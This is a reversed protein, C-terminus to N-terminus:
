LPSPAMPFAASCRIFSQPSLWGCPGRAAHRRQHQALNHRKRRFLDRTRWHRGRPFDCTGDRRFRYSTSPAVIAGIKAVAKEVVPEPGVIRLLDGRQLVVGAAVPGRSQRRIRLGLARSSSDRGFDHRFSHDLPSNVDELRHEAKRGFLTSVPRSYLLRDTSAHRCAVLAEGAHSGPMVFRGFDVEVQSRPSRGGIQASSRASFGLSTSRVVYKRLACKFWVRVTPHSARKRDMSGGPPIVFFGSM